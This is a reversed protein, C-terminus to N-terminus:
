DPQFRYTYVGPLLGMMRIKRIGTGYRSTEPVLEVLMRIKGQPLFDCSATGAASTAASINRVEPM